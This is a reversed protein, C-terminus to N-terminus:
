GNEGTERVCSPSLLECLPERESAYTEELHEESYVRSYDALYPQKSYM